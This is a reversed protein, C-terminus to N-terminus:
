FRRFSQPSIELGPIVIPETEVTVTFPPREVDSPTRFMRLNRFGAKRAAAVVSRAMEESDCYLWACSGLNQWESAILICEVLVTELRGRHREDRKQLIIQATAKAAARDPSTIM